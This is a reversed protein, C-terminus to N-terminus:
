RAVPLPCARYGFMARTGFSSRAKQKTDRAWHPPVAIGGSGDRLIATVVLVVLSSALVEKRSPRQVKQLEQYSEKLFTKSQEIMAM